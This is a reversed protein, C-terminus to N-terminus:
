PNFILARGVQSNIRARSDRNKAPLKQAALEPYLARWSKRLGQWNERSTIKEFLIAPDYVISRLQLDRIKEVKFSM